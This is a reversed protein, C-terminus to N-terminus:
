FNVTVSKGLFTSTKAALVCKALINAAMSKLLLGFPLLDGFRTVSRELFTLLRFFPIFNPIDDNPRKGLYSGKVIYFM